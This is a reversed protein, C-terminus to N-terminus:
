GYGQSLMDMQMCFYVRSLAFYTDRGSSGQTRSPSSLCHPLLPPSYPEDMTGALQKRLNRCLVHEGRKAIESADASKIGGNASSVLKMQGLKQLNKNQNTDQLVRETPLPASLTAQRSGSSRTRSPGSM